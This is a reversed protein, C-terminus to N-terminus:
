DGIKIMEGSFRVGEGMMLVQYVGKMLGKGIDIQQTATGGQHQLETKFVMQGMGNFLKLTYLGKGINILRLGLSNGQVPNPSVVIGAKGMVVVPDVPDAAKAGFVIMFRDSASSAPDSTITFSVVMSDTVSLLTRTKLFNDILEAKLATNTFSTPRFEFEYTQQKMNNMFLSLTDATRIVPRSEVSLHDNNRRIAINEDWNNIEFADNDDIGNSFSNDYIATVGDALRRYGDPETYFLTASFSEANTAGRFVGNINGAVKHTEKISLTPTGGGNSTVFFAQGPQIVTTGAPIGGSPTPTVVGGNTVTVFGGRTGVNPDWYTYYNSLNTTSLDTYIANWDIPSPYPNTVLNMAGNVAFFANTFLSQTGTLLAGTARLTTHTTPMNTALTLTTSVSRDGRVYLFYGTKANLTNLNTNAVATYNLTTGNTTLYLSPANSQTKDFGNANGGSGTIHTGYGPVTNVTSGISTVMQGEQWNANISGATNVTPTLLRYARGFNGSGDGTGPTRLKIYREVTVNTAGNLNSGTLNGIRATGASNSKLTLNKANLDLTASTLAITGYVDLATGLTASSSNNLTLNNLSRATTNTQDFNLTGVAGAVVLSSVSSGAITGAGSVTGTLTIINGAIGLIGQTLTTTGSVTLNGTLSVTNNSTSGTNNIGLNNISAPLANGTSQNATGNYTYNGSSSFNRTTTQINGSSGSSTIGSPSGIGLTGASGLSFTGAGSVTNSGCNLTGNVTLTKGTSITFGADLTVTNGSSITVNNNASPLQNADVWTAGTSNFEWIADNTFNGSSKTRFDATLISNVPIITTWLGRGHTAAALTRDSSRYKLMDVRVTPFTNHATWVTSTGNILTTEWVGTETALFARTNDGPYFMCWRIPMDPLNVGNNDLSTWNTGGNTSVWVSAVGYNSYCAILNNDNTGVNICSVTGAPMGAVTLNTATPSALQASAVKVVRGAATGFYVLNATYPSVTAASVTSSNFAPVTIASATYNTTQPDDWRFYTGATWCGYIRNGTNDYDWPNIFEGISQSWPVQTWSVGGDTSVQYVNFVYSGFQYQPQDQDIAVFAGDGATVETTSGLGASSFQHVGNDQAGGLFYNTTSPHIACSYFQKLRLGQNRDRITVGKDASYHLGGDCGFLLKNGGDFWLIKHVDAHVYQNVPTTGVWTSIQSWNTGGNTTKWTDLGGVICNNADSPDIDVALAYWGQGSAWGSAPQGGTAAWHAGGDTSKYITPVEAVNSINNAPLAYLTSGKCAIEARMVYSVFPTVPSTWGSGSSVTTPIDTYRYAQTSFIGCVVHLRGAASTSSIELDCIDSNLFSSPTIDTWSTGGNTSRLLGTGRTALYVNGLYDCLIRTCNVYSNTSSLHTWTTGGDTSKFVGNGDVADVNYYSEGTCVYMVQNNTPDQCIAAIALNTLYDNVLTWTAPSATIDTTKWLGGDVGGVWVTKHTADSSDVMIARIRGSTKGNNARTNGNSPGTIDGNPGREVWNSGFSEITPNSNFSLTQKSQITQQLATLYRERPVKGTTPDMTREFEFAAAKDPGDYMENEERESRHSPNM